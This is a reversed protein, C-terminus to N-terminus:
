GPPIVIAGPDIHSVGTQPPKIVMHDHHHGPHLTEDPHKLDPHKTPHAPDSPVLDPPVLTNSM